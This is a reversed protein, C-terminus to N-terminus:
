ACAARLRALADPSSDFFAPEPTGLKPSRRRGLAGVVGDARKQSPRSAGRARVARKRGCRREQAEEGDAILDEVALAPIRTQGSPLRIAELSGEAVYRRLTRTSVGLMEAAVSPRLNKPQVQMTPELYTESIVPGPKNSGLTKEVAALPESQPRVSHRWGM